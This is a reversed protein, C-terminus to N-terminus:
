IYDKALNEFRPIEKKFNLKTTCVPGMRQKAVIIEAIGQHESEKNYFDDRYIFVVTDADQEISGSERLDSLLPRKDPRNKFDRNLQALAIVPLNFEKAMSKLAGTIESVEVYRNEIQKNGSKMLGLYDVVVLDVPRKIQMSLKQINARMQLPTNTQTDIFILNNEHLASASSTLSQWDNGELNGGRIKQCSMGSHACLLKIGVPVKGMEISFFAVTKKEKLAVHLSIDVALTTKGMSPRGAIIILDERQLGCLVRDLRNFGTPIGTFLAKKEHIAEIHEFSLNVISKLDNFNKEAKSMSIDTLSKSGKIIIERAEDHASYAGEILFYGTKLLARKASKEKLIGAYYSIATSTSITEELQSLYEVGGVVELDENKRLRDSLTLLDIPDSKEFLSVMAAFIKNNSSRYFDNNKLTDLIKIISENDRIISGLVAREAELDHPPLKKLSIDNMHDGRTNRM